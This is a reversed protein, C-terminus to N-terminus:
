SNGQILIFTDPQKMAWLTGPRGVLKRILQQMRCFPCVVVYAHFLGSSGDGGDGDDDV